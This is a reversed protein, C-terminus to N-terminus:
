SLSVPLATRRQSMGAQLEKTCLELRKSKSLSQKEVQEEDDNDRLVRKHIRFHEHLYRAEAADRVLFM